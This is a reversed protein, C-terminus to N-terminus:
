ERERLEKNGASKFYCHWVITDETKSEFLLVSKLPLLMSNDAGRRISFPKFSCVFASGQGMKITNYNYQNNHAVRLADQSPPCGVFLSISPGKGLLLSFSPPVLLWFLSFCIFLPHLTFHLGSFGQMDKRHNMLPIQLFIYM